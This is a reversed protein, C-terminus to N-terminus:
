RPEIDEAQVGGAARGVDELLGPLAVALGAKPEVGYFAPGQPTEQGLAVVQAQAGRRQVLAHGVPRLPGEAQVSAPDILVQPAAVGERRGGVLQGAEHTAPDKPGVLDLQGLRRPGLGLVHECREFAQRDPLLRAPLRSV